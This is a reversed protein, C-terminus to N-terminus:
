GWFVERSLPAHVTVQSTRTMSQMVNYKRACKGSLLSAEMCLILYM